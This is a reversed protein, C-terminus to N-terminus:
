GLREILFDPPQTKEDTGPLLFNITTKGVGSAKRHQKCLEEVTERLQQKFHAVRDFDTSYEIVRQHRIDFPVDELRQTLLVVPKGLTHAIGLEYFVNPNRGTLDAIIFDAQVIRTWVDNVISGTTFFDDARNIEIDWEEVTPKVLDTYVKLLAPVFPMIVFCNKLNIGPQYQTNPFSPNILMGQAGIQRVFERLADSIAKHEPDHYWKPMGKHRANGGPAETLYAMFDIIARKSLQPRKPIKSKLEILLQQDKQPLGLLFSNTEDATMMEDCFGGAVLNERCDTADTGLLIYPSNPTQDSHLRIHLLGVRWPSVVLDFSSYYRVFDPNYHYESLCFVQLDDNPRNEIRYFAASYKIGIVLVRFPTSPEKPRDANRRVAM